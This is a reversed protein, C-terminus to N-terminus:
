NPNENLSDQRIWVMKLNNMSAITLQICRIIDEADRFLTEVKKVNRWGKIKITGRKLITYETKDQSVELNRTLYVTEAANLDM